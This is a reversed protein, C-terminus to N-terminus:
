SKGEKRAIDKYSDTNQLGHGLVAVENEIFRVVHDGLKYAGMFYVQKAINIKIKGFANM